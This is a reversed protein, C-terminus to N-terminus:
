PERLIDPVGDGNDDPDRDDPIGDNDDDPDTDNPVGDGDIDTDEEDPIGDGDLDHKSASVRAERDMRSGVQGSEFEDKVGDNVRVLGFSIGSGCGVCACLSILISLFCYTECKM